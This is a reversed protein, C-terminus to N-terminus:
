SRPIYNRLTQYDLSTQEVADRYWGHIESRVTDCDGHGAPHQFM